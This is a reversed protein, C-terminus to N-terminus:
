HGSGAPVRHTGRRASRRRRSRRCLSDIRLDLGRRRDCGFRRSRSLRDLLRACHAPNGEDSMYEDWDADRVWSGPGNRVLVTHVTVTLGDPATAAWHYDPLLEKNSEKIMRVHPNCASLLSCLVILQSRYVSLVAM